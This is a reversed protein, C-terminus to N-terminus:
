ARAARRATVGSLVYSPESGASRSLAQLEEDVAAVVEGTEILKLCRNDYPCIQLYCTHCEVNKRLVV